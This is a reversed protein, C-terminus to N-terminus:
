TNVVCTHIVRINNVINEAVLAVAAGSVGTVGTDATHGTDAPAQDCDGGGTNCLQYESPM